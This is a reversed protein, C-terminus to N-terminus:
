DGEAKNYNESFFSRFQLEFRATNQCGRGCMKKM